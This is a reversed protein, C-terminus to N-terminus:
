NLQYKPLNLILLWTLDPMQHTRLLMINDPHYFYIQHSSVVDWHLWFSILSDWLGELPMDKLDRLHDMNGYHLYIRVCSVSFPVSLACRPWLLWQRCNTSSVSKWLWEPNLDLCNTWLGKVWSWEDLISQISCFLHKTNIRIQKKTVTILVMVLHLKYLFLNTEALLNDDTMPSNWAPVWAFVHLCSRLLASPPINAPKEPEYGALM